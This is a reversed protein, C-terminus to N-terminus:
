HHHAEFIANKADGKGVVYALLDLVEDKLLKNLVGKPMISVKSTKREEIDAKSITLVQDPALPNNLVRLERDTEEVILGTVVKGAKTVIVQSQYRPDIKKSPDLIHELVDLPAYNPDLKSLDPGIARGKGNLQHCGVCSAVKFLQEGVAFSNSRHELHEVDASLDSLKWDTDRSLYTLLEDQITIKKEALYRTKDAQFSEVDHVVYLAGYMRRWHGPYTCVYPYIGEQKPVEFYVRDKDGPQLLRSSVLIQSSRPIFHRAAADRDRGTQEALEGVQQLHGPTVVAFNHPMRDHNVLAFEVPQGARVVVTDVDYIMREEVTGIRIQPVVLQALREQFRELDSGKLRNELSQSIKLTVAAAESNREEPPLSALFSLSAEGLRGLEESPWKDSPINVIAELAKVSSQRNRLLGNLAGVKAAEKGPLLMMAEIALEQASQPAETVLLNEPIPSKGFGPGDWQLRLGDDGGNDFYTVVLKHLGQTLSARVKKESMGHLGDHDIVLQRDLYLRSGDDSALYFTYEGPKEVKLSGQFRLAFADRTQLVPVEMTIQSARGTANPTLKELTEAAVKSPNPAYFDVVLGPETLAETGRTGPLKPLLKLIQKLASSRAQDGSVLRVSQLVEEVSIRGAEAAAFPGDATADATMWSAIAVRRAESTQGDTALTMIRNRVARLQDAPQDALLRALSNLVNTDTDASLSDILSFLEETESTNKSKALGTLAGRLAQVPASERTLIAQYVDVSPQMRLLEAVSAYKLAYRRAGPSLVSGAALLRKLYGDVDLSSIAEKLNFDLQIDTPHQQAAFVVEPANPTNLTVAAIVAQARVKPSPDNAMDIMIETAEEATLASDKRLAWEAAVKVAAARAEAVPSSLVRSLLEINPSRHQQHVWLAETLPLAAAVTAADFDNAWNGAATVAEARDRGTLELRARYRDGPNPSGLTAVVASVPQARLKRVATPPRGDATVRYVRGHRHDRSPDRLNHQMHGILPNQWDLVYLAGDSGMEMDSPRFNPDTSYLIPEVETAHLSAGDEEFQYQTVGQFGIVNAILLNGRNEEPFHQSDLICTAPVPRVRKEYLQKPAGRGPFGVYNGTGGTGDTVFQNGWQDFCDGHPNPGIRFQHDIEWTVPDWKFVGCSGSNARYTRTPTEFNEYHFIGRSFFFRGDPGMVFSNATHHTDASDLGHYIREKVDARDDGDTDKLFFIDPAMAVLVGGNWFEFGTPNHLGDAFTICRDAKGDGDEDPLILLKDNMEELPHWHPYTPWAAVWLRGDTDVASQVPNVLEPFQEESAFLNVSMGHHVTMMQIAEEGGLFAHQADPETGPKNTIVPIVEPLNSDDPERPKGQAAAWIVKDRNATMVNLIELERAQVEFNTQGNMFKLGSRGGFVSYGDTARYINHWILNKKLVATRILNDNVTRSDESGFLSREILRSLNRYGVENMHIGNITAPGDMQEYLQVTASFLDVFRVGKEHAVAKMAQTYLALRRNNESGDPLEPNGLNEHAIPSFLILEPSTQGDYKQQLTHDIMEVLKGRFGNLGAEGEFAENYGFFALVVEAKVRSLWEDPSGFNESRPRIDIVDASFGLNRIVLQHEPHRRHLMTELWGFHQMRDALTNGIIAIHSNRGFRVPKETLSQGQAISISVTMLLLATLVSHGTGNLQTIRRNM